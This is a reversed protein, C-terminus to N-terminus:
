QETTETIEFVMDVKFQGGLIDDTCDPDNGELWIVVTVKSMDGPAFTTKEEELIVDGRLFNTMVRGDPEVEPQGNGGTKPKAYETYTGDHRYTDTEAKYYDGNYYVRVRAAADIGMTARSVILRYRYSCAVEGTNKVYFTYALYNEGNHMGDVDNLDKPLDNGDINTINTAAAANLYSTANRFDSGESLSLAYKRDEYDKVTVTFSGYRSFLLSVIYLIVLFLTSAGIIPPLVKRYRRIRRVGTVTRRLEASTEKKELM